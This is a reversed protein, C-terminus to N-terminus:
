LNLPIGIPIIKEEETEFRYYYKVNEYKGNDTAEYYEFM